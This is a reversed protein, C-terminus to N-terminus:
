NSSPSLSMARVFSTLSDRWAPMINLDLAQTRTNAATENPSVPALRPFIVSAVRTNSGRAKLIASVYQLRSAPEGEGVCNVTGGIGAGVLAFAQDAIDNAFTPCGAQHPNSGIEDKGDAEKLRAWVFNKRQGAQGGFVWGLRMVLAGPAALLVAEEGAAKSRHHVTTPRLPDNETYPTNKWDGYCGTSSFHLISAGAETAGRALAGALTTNVAFAREPAREAGEVDTDAACNIILAPALGVVKRVVAEPDAPDLDARGLQIVSSTTLIRSFTGGLIGAAGTLIVTGDIM